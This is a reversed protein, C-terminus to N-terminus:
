MFILIIGLFFHSLSANKKERRCSLTQFIEVFVFIFFINYFLEKM